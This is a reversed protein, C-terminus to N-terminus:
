ADAIRKRITRIWKASCGIFEAVDEAKATCYLPDLRALLRYKEDAKLDKRNVIEMARVRLYDDDRTLQMLPDAEAQRAVEQEPLEGDPYFMPVPKRDRNGGTTGLVDIIASLPDYRLVDEDTALLEDVIAQVEGRGYGAAEIFREDAVKYQDPVYRRGLAYCYAPCVSILLRHLTGLVVDTQDESLGLIVAENTYKRESM